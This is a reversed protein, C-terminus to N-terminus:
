PPDLLFQRFMPPPRRALLQRQLAGARQEDLKREAMWIWVDAEFPHLGPVGSRGLVRKLAQFKQKAKGADGGFIGPKYLYSQGEVLLVYPESPNIDRAQNLIRESRRGYTPLHIKSSNGAKYAWLAAILAMERASRVGEESPITQIVGMDMTMPFLRYNVLLREERSRASRSLRRVNAIDRQVYYHTLSDRVPTSTEAAFAGSAPPTAEPTAFALALLLFVFM